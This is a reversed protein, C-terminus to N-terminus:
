WFMPLTSTACWFKMETALVTFGAPVRAYM